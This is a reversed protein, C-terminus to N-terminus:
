YHFPILRIGASLNYVEPGKDVDFLPILNYNAYLSVYKGIGVRATLDASFRNMNYTGYENVKIKDGDEFWKRRVTANMRIGGVIGAAFHIGKESENHSNFAILLPVNFYTARLRNKSYNNITDELAFVGDENYVVHRNHDFSFNHFSFGFGTVLKLHDKVLDVDFEGFNLAWHISKGYDQDQLWSYDFDDPGAPLMLYNVGFDWGSWHSYNFAEDDNDEEDENSTVIIIKKNKMEIRTTDTGNSDSFVIVEKEISEENEIAETKTEIEEVQANSVFGFLLFLLLTAILKM